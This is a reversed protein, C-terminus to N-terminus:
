VTNKITHKAKELFKAVSAIDFYFMKARALKGERFRYV